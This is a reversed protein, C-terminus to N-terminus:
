RGTWGRSLALCTQKCGERPYLGMAPKREPGSKGPYRYFRSDATWQCRQDPSDYHFVTVDYNRPSESPDHRDASGAHRFFSACFPITPHLPNCKCYCTRDLGLNTGIHEGTFPRCPSMTFPRYDIHRFTWFPNRSEGPNDWFSQIATIRDEINEYFAGKNKQM